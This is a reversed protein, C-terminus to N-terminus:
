VVESLTFKYTILIGDSVTKIINDTKEAFSNGSKDILKSNTITGTYTDNIFIYVYLINAVVKTSQFPIVTDVGAINIIAHDLNNTILNAITNMGITTIM